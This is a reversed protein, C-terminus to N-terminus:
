RSSCRSIRLTLHNPNQLNGHHLRNCLSPLCVRRRVRPGDKRRPLRRLPAPQASATISRIWHKAREAYTLSAFLEIFSWFRIRHDQRVALHRHTLFPDAGLNWLMRYTNKPIATSQPVSSPMAPESAFCSRDYPWSRQLAPKVVTSMLGCFFSPGPKTRAARESFHHDCHNDTTM